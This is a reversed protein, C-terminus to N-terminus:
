RGRGDCLLFAGRPRVSNTRVAHNGDLVAGVSAVKGLGGTRRGRQLFFEVDLCGQDLPVRADELNGNGAFDDSGLSPQAEGGLSFDDLADGLREGRL